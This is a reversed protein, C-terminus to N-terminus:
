GCRVSIRVSGIHCRAAPWSAGYAPVLYSEYRKKVLLYDTALLSRESGASDIYTISEISMVPHPLPIRETFMNQRVEWVQEILCQGIEHEVQATAGELWATIGVDLATGDARLADRAAEITVPLVAPAIIRVRTREVTAM